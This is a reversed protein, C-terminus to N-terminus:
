RTDPMQKCYTPSVALGSLAHIELWRMSVRDPWGEGSNCIHSYGNQWLSSGSYKENKPTNTCGFLGLPNLHEVGESGVRGWCWGRCVVEAKLKLEEKSGQPVRIAAALLTTAVHGKDYQRCYSLFGLLASMLGVAPRGIWQCVDWSTVRSVNRCHEIRLSSFDPCVVAGVCKVM